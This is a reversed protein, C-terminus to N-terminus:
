RVPGDTRSYNLRGVTAPYIPRSFTDIWGHALLLLDRREDRTEHSILKYAFHDRYNFMLIDM